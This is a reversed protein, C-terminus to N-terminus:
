CNFLDNEIYEDYEEKSMKKIKTNATDIYEKMTKEGHKVCQSKLCKLSCFFHLDLKMGTNYSIEALNTLARYGEFLRTEYMKAGKPLPKGCYDCPRPKKGWTRERVDYFDKLKYQFRAM